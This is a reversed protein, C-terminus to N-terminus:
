SRMETASNSLARRSAVTLNLGRGSSAQSNGTRRGASTMAGNGAPQRGEDIEHAVPGRLAVRCELLVDRVAM